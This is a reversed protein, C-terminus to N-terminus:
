LPQVVFGDFYLCPTGVAFFLNPGGHGRTDVAFPVKVVVLFGENSTAGFVLFM